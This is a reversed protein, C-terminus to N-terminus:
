SGGGEMLLHDPFVFSHHIDPLSHEEVMSAISAPSFDEGSLVPDPVTEGFAEPLFGAKKLHDTIVQVHKSSVVLTTDSLQELIYSSIDPTHVISECIEPTRCRMLTVNEFFISGYSNAWSEISFSVNQPLPTRSHDRFFRMIDDTSMGRERARAVGEQTVVFTLVTDRSKRDALLDLLFRTRPDLEPGAVVEFNPQVTFYRGNAEDMPLKEGRFLRMGPDTLSFGGDQVSLIGLQNLVALTERVRPGLRKEGGAAATRTHLFRTLGAEGFRMEPQLERLLGALSVVAYVDKLLHELAFSVIDHMRETMTLSLWGHLRPTIRVERNGFRVLGRERAYEMVFSNRRDVGFRLSDDRCTPSDGFIRELASKKVKGMLTLPLSQKNVSSLFSYIDELLNAPSFRSAASEGERFTPDDILLLKRVQEAVGEPCFFLNEEDKIGGVLGLPILEHVLERVNKKRNRPFGLREAKRTLVREPVGARYSFAIISLVGVHDESLEDILRETLTGDWFARDIANMLKIRARYEVEIDLVEAINKLAKLPIDHLYDRLYM